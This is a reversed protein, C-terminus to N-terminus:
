LTPRVVGLRAEIAARGAIERDTAVGSEELARIARALWFPVDIRELIALQARVRDAAREPDGAAALDRRARVLTFAASTTPSPSDPPLPAAEAEALLEDVWDLRRAAFWADVIADTAAVWAYGGMELWIRFAPRVHELDPTTAAGVGGTARHLDVGAQLVRAYPSGPLRGTREGFWATAHELVRTRGRLSAAPLLATWSRVSIRDYGHREGLEVARLGADIATDWDGSGLAAEATVQDIWGLREVFGRALALERAPELIGPVDAPLSEMRYRAVAIRAKVETLADDRARAIEALAAWDDATAEGAESRAGALDRRFEYEANGDGAAVAADIARECDRVWGEVENTEGTRGRSRALRVRATDLDDLDGMEALAADGLRWAETFRIREYHLTALEEVARAFHTRWGPDGAARAARAAGIAEELVDAAERAGGSPALAQGLLTLRRSLDAPSQSPTVAVARRFLSAAAAVAGDRM